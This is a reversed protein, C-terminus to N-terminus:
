NVTIQEWNLKFTYSMSITESSTSNQSWAISIYYYTFEGPDLVAEFIGEDEFVVEPWGPESAYDDHLNSDAMLDVQLCTTKNTNCKSKSYSNSTYANNGNEDTISKLVAPITGTNEVKIAFKKVSSPAGLTASATVVNDVVNINSATVIGYEWYTDGTVEKYDAVTTTIEFNGKATATGTITITESFLAYGVVCVVVFVLIGLLIKNGNKM